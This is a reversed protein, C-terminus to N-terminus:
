SSCPDTRGFDSDMGKPSKVSIDDVLRQQEETFLIGWVPDLKGLADTVEAEGPLDGGCAEIELDIDRLRTEAEAYDDNVKRLEDAVPLM